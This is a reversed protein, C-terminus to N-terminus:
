SCKAVFKAGTSTPAHLRVNVQLPGSTTILGAGVAGTMSTKLFERRDMEKTRSM